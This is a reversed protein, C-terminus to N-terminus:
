KCFIICSTLIMLSALGGFIPVVIGTSLSILEALVSM